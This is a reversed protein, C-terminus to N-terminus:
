KLFHNLDTQLKILRAGLDPRMQVARLSQFRIARDAHGKLWDVASHFASQAKCAPLQPSQACDLGAPPTNLAQGCDVALHPSYAVGMFIPFQSKLDNVIDASLPDGEWKQILCALARESYTLKFINSQHLVVMSGVANLQSEVSILYHEIEARTLTACQHYVPRSQDECTRYSEVGHNPHRCSRELEVGFSEHRCTAPEDPYECQCDVYRPKNQSSNGTSALSVTEGEVFVDPGDSRECSIKKAGAPCKGSSWFTRGEKSGPCSMSTGQFYLEVGCFPSRREIYNEIGCSPRSSAEYREIGCEEIRRPAPNDYSDTLESFGRKKGCGCLLLLAPVLLVGRVFLKFIMIYFMSVGNFDPFLRGMGLEFLLYERKFLSPCRFGLIFPGILFDM